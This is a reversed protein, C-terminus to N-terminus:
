VSPEQQRDSPGDDAQEAREVCKECLMVQISPRPGVKIEHPVTKHINHIPCIDDM